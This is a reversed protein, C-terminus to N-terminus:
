GLEAREAKLAELHKRIWRMFLMPRDEALFRAEGTDAIPVPFWFVPAYYTQDDGLHPDETMVRYWLEGNQYHTFEVYNDPQVLSKLEPLPREPTNM